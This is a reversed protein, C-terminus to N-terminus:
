ESPIVDWFSPEKRFSLERVGVSACLEAVVPLLYDRRRGADWVFPCCSLLAGEALGTPLSRLGLSPSQKLSYLGALPFLGQSKVAQGLTGMFPTTAAHFREGKKLVLVLDDSLLLADPSLSVVTSKGAGSHGFFVHAKSHRVLGAAHLVVGGRLLAMDAIRWRLCNEIANLVQATDQPASIALVTREQARLRMAAFRHSVLIPGAPTPSEEIRFFLDQAPELYDKEGEFAIVSESPSLESLFPAYRERVAENLGDSLGSIEVALDHIAITVSKEGLVKLPPQFHGPGPRRDAM